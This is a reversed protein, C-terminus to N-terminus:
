FFLQNSITPFFWFFTMNMASNRALVVLLHCIISFIEAIQLCFSFLYLSFIYNQGRVKVSFDVLM